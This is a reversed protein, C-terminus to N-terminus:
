EGKIRIRNKFFLEYTHRMHMKLGPRMSYGDRKEFVKVVHDVLGDGDERDVFAACEACAAWFSDSDLTIFTRGYKVGIDESDSKFDLCQYRTVVDKSSCFDCIVPRPM